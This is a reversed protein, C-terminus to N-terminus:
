CTGQDCDMCYYKSLGVVMFGLITEKSSPPHLPCIAALRCADGYGQWQIGEVLQAAESGPDLNITILKQALLAQKFYPAFGLNQQLDLQAPHAPSSKPVGISGRLMYRHQGDAPTAETSKAASRDTETSYFLAFPFDKGNRSLVQIAHEWYSDSDRARSSAQSLELLTQSRRELTVFKTQRFILPRCSYQWYCYRL